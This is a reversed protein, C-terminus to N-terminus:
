QEDIDGVETSCIGIQEGVVLERLQQDGRHPGVIVRDVTVGAARVGSDGGVDAYQPGAVVVADIGGLQPEPFVVGRSREVKGPVVASMEVEVIVDIGDGCPHIGIGSFLNAASGTTTTPMATSAGPPM